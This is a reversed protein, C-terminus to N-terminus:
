YVIRRIGKEAAAEAFRRAAAADKAEFDKSDLAHVLYYAADCGDLAKRLSELDSVDGAVAKGPGDYSDPHRTMARVEHGVEDLAPVLHSGVFGTAGTVLVTLPM